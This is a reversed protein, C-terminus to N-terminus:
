AVCEVDPMARTEAVIKITAPLVVIEDEERDVILFAIDERRVQAEILIARSTDRQRYRMLFPFRAAVTANTTWSLRLRNEPYCGRWITVIEPLTAYVRMADDSMASCIPFGSRTRERELLRIVRLTYKSINDCCSWEDGVLSWFDPADALALLARM